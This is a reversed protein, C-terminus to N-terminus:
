KSIMLRDSDFFAGSDILAYIMFCYPNSIFLCRNSLLFSCFTYFLIFCETFEMEYVWSESGEIGDNFALVWYSLTTSDQGHWTEWLVVYLFLFPVILMYKEMYSFLSPPLFLSM